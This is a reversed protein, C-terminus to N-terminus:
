VPNEDERCDSSICVDPGINLDIYVNGCDQCLPLKEKRAIESNKLILDLITRANGSREMKRATKVAEVIDEPLNFSADVLLNKLEKKVRTIKIIKM